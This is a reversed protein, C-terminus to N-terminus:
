AARLLVMGYRSYTEQILARTREIRVTVRLLSSQLQAEPGFCKIFLRTIVAENLM